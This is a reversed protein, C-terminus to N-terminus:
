LYHYRIDQHRFAEKVKDRVNSLLGSFNYQKKFDIYILVTNVFYGVIKRFERKPRNLMPIATFIKSQGTYRFLFLKLIALLIIFPTYGKIEFVKDPISFFRLKTIGSFNNSTHISSSSSNTFPFKVQTIENGLEKKWYSLLDEGSQGCLMKKQWKTFEFYENNLEIKQLSKEIKATNNSFYKGLFEQILINVTWGDCIIHHASTLFIHKYESYSYIHFRILPGHELSFPENADKQIQKQLEEETLSNISHRIFHMQQEPHIIQVPEGKQMSFTSRLQANNDLIQRLLAESKDIDVKFNFIIKASLNYANNNNPLTCSQWISKQSFSLPFIRQAKISM